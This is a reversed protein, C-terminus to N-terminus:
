AKWGNQTEAWIHADDVWVRNVRYQEM